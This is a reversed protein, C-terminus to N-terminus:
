GKKIEETTRQAAEVPDDARLIPRGMVLFGAGAEMAESPTMKRAQDDAEQYWLPRIGPVIKPLSIHKLKGLELPSCVVYSAGAEQARHALREVARQPRINYIDLCAEEDLSTLVTVAAIKGPLNEVAAAIMDKGGSAHVTVIGPDCKAAIKETTNKVTNPIDHFKGDLMVPGFVSLACVATMGHEFYLDNIKFGWVHDKLREAIANAKDFDIGDLAVIIPNDM